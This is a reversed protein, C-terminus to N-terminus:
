EFYAKAWTGMCPMWGIYYAGGAVAQLSDRDLTRLSEKRLELKKGNVDRKTRKM